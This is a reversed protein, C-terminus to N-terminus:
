NIYGMNRDIANIVYQSFLPPKQLSSLVIIKGKSSLEHFPGGLTLDQNTSCLWMSSQHMIPFMRTINKMGNIKMFTSLFFSKPNFIFPLLSLQSLYFHGFKSNLMEGYIPNLM